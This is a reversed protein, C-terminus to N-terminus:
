PIEAFPDYRVFGVKLLRQAADNVARHWFEEDRGVPKGFAGWLHKACWEIEPRYERNVREVAEEYTM